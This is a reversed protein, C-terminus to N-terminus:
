QKGGILIIDWHNPDLALDLQTQTYNDKCIRNEIYCGSM